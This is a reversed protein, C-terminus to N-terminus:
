GGPAPSASSPVPPSEVPAEPAPDLLQTSGVIAFSGVGEAAGTETWGVIVIQDGAVVLANGMVGLVDLTGCVATVGPKVVRLVSILGVVRGAAM